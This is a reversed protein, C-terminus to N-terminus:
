GEQPRNKPRTRKPAPKKPPAPDARAELEPESNPTPRAEAAQPEPSAVATPTATGQETAGAPEAHAAFRSSPDNSALPNAVFPTANTDPALKKKPPVGIGFHEWVYDLIHPVQAEPGLVDIARRIAETRSLPDNSGQDHSDSTM